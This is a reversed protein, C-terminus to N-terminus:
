TSRTAVPGREFTCFCVILDPHGSGSVGVAMLDGEWRDAVKLAAGFRAQLKNLTEIIAGDKAM